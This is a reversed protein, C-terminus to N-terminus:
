HLVFAVFTPLRTSESHSRIGVKRMYMLRKEHHVRLEVFCCENSKLCALGPTHRGEPDQDLKTSWAEMLNEELQEPQESNNVFRAMLVIEM